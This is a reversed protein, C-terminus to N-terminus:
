GQKFKWSKARNQERWMIKYIGEVSLLDDHNGSQIIRGKDLVLIQDADQISQLRHAIVVITKDKVLNSLAQQVHIENEPDLSATAEDLLVIPADKLIARAISIRQKEGGSLNSGGEGIVSDYGNPMAMIFDHCAAQKAAQHIEELTADPKGMALNERVTDNFLYVDQFVMTIHKMLTDYKLAQLPTDGICLTGSGVDWFRAILKTITSKGSGSRGVLATMSNKPMRCTLDNLVNGEEPTYAFDVHNFSINASCVEQDTEPQLLPATNLVKDIRKASLGYFTLETLFTYAMLLPDGIRMGMVLFIIFIQPTINGAILYYSGALLMVPLVAHLVISSLSISSGALAEQMISAKRLEDFSSKLSKCNDGGLNYAKIERIGGIYELMRSSAENMAATQKKGLRGVLLRALFILPISCVLTLLMALSMRVNIFLLFVIGTIPFAVGAVMKPLLRSLMNNLNSSDHVVLNSLDGPDRSAFFGMPLKRMQKALKIQAQEEVDCGIDSASIYTIRNIFYLLVTTVVIGICVALLLPKNLTRGTELVEMYELVVMVTFGYPMSEFMTALVQWLVSPLLRRHNGVSIINLWKNM